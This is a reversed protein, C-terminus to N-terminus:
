TSVPRIPHYTSEFFSPQKYLVFALQTDTQPLGSLGYHEQHVANGTTPSIPLWDDREKIWSPRDERNVMATMPLRIARLRIENPVVGPIKDFHEALYNIGFHHKDPV